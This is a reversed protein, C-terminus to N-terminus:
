DYFTRLMEKLGPHPYVDFKDDRVSNHTYVGAVGRLADLSMEWLDDREVVPINYKETYEQLLFKVSAIQEPSYSHWYLHGKFPEDLRIVQSKPVQRNVYNLFKGGTVPKLYGWNCLEIGISIRDLEVYKLGRSTFTKSPIGLHYAWKDEPFGSYIKGDRSIVVCTAIRERSKMWDQFVGAANDNGATHHLYVQRKKVSEDIYNSPPFNVKIM